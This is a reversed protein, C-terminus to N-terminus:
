VVRVFAEMAQNLMLSPQTTLSQCVHDDFPLAFLIGLLTLEVTREVKSQNNPTLRDIKAWLGEMRATLESYLKDPGKRALFFELWAQHRLSGDRSQHMRGIKTWLQYVPRNAECHLLIILDSSCM